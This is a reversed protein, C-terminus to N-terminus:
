DNVKEYIYIESDFDERSKSYNYHKTLGCVLLILGKSNIVIPWKKRKTWGIKHDIFVRSIKKKGDKLEIYDDEYYPRITLPFDEKNLKLQHKGDGVKLITFFQSDFERPRNITYYYYDPDSNPSVYLNGYEKVLCREKDLPIILNSKDSKVQRIIDKIAKMSYAKKNVLKFLVCEIINEDEEFLEFSINNGDIYKKYLEDVLSFKKELKINEKIIKDKLQYKEDNSMKDLIRHRIRNRLFDDSLNSCDISYYVKNEMCYKLLDSKLVNICPRIVRMDDIYTEQAIGYFRTQTRREKQIYYTELHDDLNHAILLAKANYKIYLDKFFKFRYERAWNQFDGVVKEDVTKTEFILNHKKCFLRVNEQEIDSEERKKYNVLAVVLRYKENKFLDLMAMSDPGGSIALVVYSKENFEPRFIEMYM